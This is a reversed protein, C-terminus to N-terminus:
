AKPKTAKAEWRTRWQHGPNRLPSTYQTACLRPLPAWCLLSQVRGCERGDARSGQHLVGPGQNSRWPVTVGRRQLENPDYTLALALAAQAWGKAAAYDYLNRATSVNGDDYDAADAHRM